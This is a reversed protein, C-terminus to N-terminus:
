SSLREVAFRAFSRVASRNTEARQVLEFPLTRPPVLPVSVVGDPFDLPVTVTLYSATLV